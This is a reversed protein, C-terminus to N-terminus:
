FQDEEAVHEESQRIFTKILPNVFLPKRLLVLLVIVLLIIGTTISFGTIYSGTVHSLWLGTIIGVFIIFLFLLFLSIIIWLFYGASKSLFRVAYLRYITMRVEFYERLLKTNDKFFSDLNERTDKM